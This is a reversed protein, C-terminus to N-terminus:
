KKQYQIETFKKDIKDHLDDFYSRIEQEPKTPLQFKM